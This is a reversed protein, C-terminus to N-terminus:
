AALTQRYIYKHKGQYHLYLVDNLSPTSYLKNKKCSNIISEKTMSSSSCPNNGIISYSINLQYIVVIVTACLKVLVGTM